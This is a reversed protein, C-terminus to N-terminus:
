DLAILAASLGPLEVAVDGAEGLAGEGWLSDVSSVAGGLAIPSFAVRRGTTGTNLVFLVRKGDLSKLDAYLTEDAFLHTRAGSSLAPHAKRIAMLRAVDDKLALARPDLETAEITVGPVKGSTRSAHDDCLGREACGEDIQEAYGPVEEGLEEGYYLAIPGSYAALFAFAARHRDWYSADDPDGLGGRQVLDGFRVVDHNGMFGVPVAHDPYRARAALSWDEALISAPAGGAGSEEVALAQVLAYRTPFDFLGTLGPADDTGFLRALGDAGTWYEGVHLHPKGVAAASDRMLETLENWAEPPTQYVQDLRWSAVGFEDAWYRIFEAYFDMTAPDSWDVLRGPYNRAGGDYAGTDTEDAPTLGSPSPAVAGKHHGFVGDFMVSLGRAEAESVLRRVDAKNGFGPDINFYDRPFYGTADLRPDVPDDGRLRDQPAGAESDFVPTLWVMTAGTSAIWDLAAIVGRIDGRHHSPGYGFGYDFRPEADVFAEVMVQYIVEGCGASLDGRNCPLRDQVRGAAVDVRIADAASGIDAQPVAPAPATCAALAASVFLARFLTTM